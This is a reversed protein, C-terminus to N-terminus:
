FFFFFSPTKNFFFEISSQTWSNIDISGAEVIFTVPRDWCFPLSFTDLSGVERAAVLIEKRNKGTL